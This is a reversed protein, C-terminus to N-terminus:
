PSYTPLRTFNYWRTSKQNRWRMWLKGRSAHIKAWHVWFHTETTPTNM